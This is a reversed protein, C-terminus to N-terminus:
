DEENSGARSPFVPAENPDLGPDLEAGCSNFVFALTLYAGVVFTAEVLQTADLQEALRAWTADSICADDLLEDTAALLDADLAAWVDASWDGRSIAVIQDDTVGLKRAIRVHQAWEYEGRARWAVRLIMLERQRPDLTPDNLLVGNFTLWPGGLRPHRMLVSLVTPMPPADPAGSLFQKAAGPMNEHLAARADDSWEDVPIPPLRPESM